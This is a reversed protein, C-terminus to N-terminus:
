HETGREDQATAVLDEVRDLIERRTHQDTIAEFAKLLRWLAVVEDEDDDIAM